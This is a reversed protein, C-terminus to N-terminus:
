FMDSTASERVVPASRSAIFEGTIMQAYSAGPGVMPYVGADPDIMVELFAPGDFALFATITAELEEPRELRQAWAFGDAQAALVFDKKHLSKDSAAFRGKFYLKQWQRVMGDGVNNLVVIKIPLNYTAVTELEGINMRISADGDIDIVLKDRHAFQAGVAAPLGFGMTGMSGSTLWHRPARFDFYQAAWMQHQGVGTSIIARGQTHRNIAELVACPQVLTSGRDFNLAHVRKLEAVQAHWAELSPQLARARGYATLRELARVLPGVHHWHVSKVKGIEAPDIDIQAIFKARPAFKDPVGAVRDDFRAGLALVFDCDEVAYNAYATGHMGLMHLALPDTTDFGGLGMLTTTVPLGFADVFARLATAASAAIVGGGAYILPRKAQMLATFFAACDADNLASQEVARLRARYGTLALEGTGHFKLATNQVDKPVDVVVPGPRGSRALTFATRLTAELQTADTVLFVHKACAGMINSIPAEQFADSGIAVTSVQGCIVVLPISDAMSDRVPTVMNTAGPGSTVVTVGVKGSARAYGAAMFGAGQENAPVILPMPEDGDDKLHTANYRFVADYVPLIAGGSYGFMVEVGEDAFVQVIVEAGSMSHGALPHQDIAIAQTRQTTQASTTV